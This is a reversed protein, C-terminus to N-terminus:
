LMTHQTTYKKMNCYGEKKLVFICAIVCKKTPAVVVAIPSRQQDVRSPKVIISFLVDYIINSIKFIIINYDFIDTVSSIVNRLM